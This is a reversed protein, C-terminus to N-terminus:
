FRLKKLYSSSIQLCAMGDVVQDREVHFHQIGQSAAERFIAPFDIIGSGVCEFDETGDKSMDKVHLAQYRGSYKKLWTLPDAKGKRVWYVDMECKVLSRDTNKMLIDFPLGEQVTHFEKDHNHWCFALGRKKCAEGMKNLAESSRMCDDYSFPAGVFWPWYAVAYKMNMAGLEDLKTEFEDQEKLMGVGGGVPEIGIDRCYALFDAVSDGPHKGIEMENYGMDAVKKLAGKWDEKMEKGIIGSIFGM